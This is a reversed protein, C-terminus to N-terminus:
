EKRHGKHRRKRGPLQSSDDGSVRTKAGTGQKAGRRGGRPLGDPASASIGRRTLDIGIVRVDEIGPFQNALQAWHNQLADVLAGFNEARKGNPLDWSQKNGYYVLVFIGRSSRKDRLYDGCLQSELRELLHPGTWKDVLKLEVPVPGDFGVGHFRLDPKKADALEEEQPVVYRGGARDRCWGGIYKRIETEQDVAQLISAISTDGDELDSKLGLLRDVALYWLDRHNAPTREQSDHFERVQSPTWAPEDADLEAKAKAHFAMWPRSSEEPHERSIEMLALFAEKGPTERIFSFLASRADQASDRLGPSYVGTGARDIDDAERIYRQMLLYLAKLHEVTRYAQRATGGERRGGLLGTIFRMTFLTRDTEALIEALRAALAPIAVSPDVGVWVAFWIPGFQPDRSSRAKGAALTAISADDIASGQVITLMHRLNETNRPSRRLRAVILPALRDWMWAGSWSADYLVYHSQSEPDETALEFDIETMVFNTVVDPFADYISPLWSPFGNLEHLAFRVAIEADAPSLERIWGPEERSEISLGTLGFIVGFPTTNPAAGESRLQPRHKRWFTIAGQRFARAIEEGFHPILSRWNGETWKGTRDSQDRMRQYLYYQANTILDPKAPDCLADIHGELYEKWKQETAKERTAERAARRKWRREQERWRKRGHAPPHLLQELTAKLESEGDALRKLRRRWSSPRGNERYLAFALTLAVLRDDVQTRSRIDDCITEFHEAGFSWYRGFSGVQWFETLREGKNGARSTRTEAVDHWFLAHNLEAWRKVLDPLNDRVERFAADGYERIAPLNRLLFLTPSDLAGPERAEILRVAAEAASQALWSYCESVECFRREIVPPTVLLTRFGALLTPLMALPLSAVYQSMADALNDATYRKKAPALKLARLLWTVAKEDYPLGLVLEALWDRDLEGEEALFAERVEEQEDAPAVTRLARFAAIRTYKARSSLSFSKAEAVAGVLQGQWIMRLLFWAIDDDEGYQALLSKIEDTLDASAFRQVAAYDTLSRGHAPQALQECAQRLIASRTDRPLQSPDGGEFIVEPALRCVRALIREDWIALWPLVPRMTPVIVEIGYQTRFFLSEIKERSGEDVILSHLWEATLYERVSRHHFRVTGYIGEDFIPRSLLTACEIDDWDTLVERVPLGKANQTGDPVRIASEQGLTAAAAVLRAGFRVRELSIPRAESRDQDREELRRGISSQMLELRSGIRQHENWFEAIEALDQPRTTFSWADMRDVADRFAKVDTVGKGRVFVDVRHGRIDDLAVIKFPDTEGKDDDTEKTEVSGIESSFSDEDVAEEARKYPFAKQCLLLDTKPRWAETRGTILVHVNQLVKALRRGIRRIAREFDKPDRLRAEDVSDLLLWGEEGTAVWECFEEYTGEEFAEEFAEPVHEIRLFFAPRGEDRLKRSIYRIEATKGSGAESLLVVRHEAILDSWHLPERLGFLHTLEVDDGAGKEHILEHFTRALPIFDDLLATTAM